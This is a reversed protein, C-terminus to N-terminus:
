RFAFAIFNTSANDAEIADLLTSLVTLLPSLPMNLLVFRFNRRLPYPRAFNRLAPAPSRRIRHLSAGIAELSRQCSASM